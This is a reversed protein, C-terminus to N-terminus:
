IWKKMIMLVISVGVYLHEEMPNGLHKKLNIKMLEEFADELDRSTKNCV